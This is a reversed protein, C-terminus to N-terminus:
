SHSRRLGVFTDVAGARGAHDLLGCPFSRLNLSLSLQSRWAANRGGQALM